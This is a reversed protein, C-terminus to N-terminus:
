GRAQRCGMLSLDRGSAQGAQDGSRTRVGRVSQRPPHRVSLLAPRIPSRAARRENETEEVGIAEPRSPNDHKAIWENLLALEDPPLRMGVLTLWGPQPRIARGGIAPLSMPQRGKHEHHTNSARGGRGGCCTHAAGPCPLLVSLRWLQTATTTTGEPRFRGSLRYHQFAGGAVRM